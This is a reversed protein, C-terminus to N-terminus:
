SKAKFFNFQYTTDTEVVDWLHTKLYEQLDAKNVHVTLDGDVRQSTLFGIIPIADPM